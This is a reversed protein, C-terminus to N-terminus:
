RTVITTKNVKSLDTCDWTATLKRVTGTNDWFLPRVITSPLSKARTLPNHKVFDKPLTALEYFKVLAVVKFEGKLGPREPQDFSDDYTRGDDTAHYRSSTRVEGQKVPWAEWFLPKQSNLTPDAVTGDLLRSCNVIAQEAKRSEGVTCIASCASLSRFVSHNVARIDYFRQVQQIIWGDSGAKTPLEFEVLWEMSGYGLDKPGGYLTNIKPNQSATPTTGLAPIYILGPNASTSFSWNKRRHPPGCLRL